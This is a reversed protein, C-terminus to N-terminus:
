FLSPNNAKDEKEKDKDKDKNNDEEEEKSDGVVVAGKISARHVM